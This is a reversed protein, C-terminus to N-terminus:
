DFLYIFSLNAYHKIDAHYKPDDFRHRKKTRQKRAEWIPNAMATLETDSKRQLEAEFAQAKEPTYDIAPRVTALDPPVPPLRVKRGVSGGVGTAAREARKVKKHNKYQPFKEFVILDIIQQRGISVM